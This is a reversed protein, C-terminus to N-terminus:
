CVHVLMHWEKSPYLYPEIEDIFVKFIKLLIDDPITGM